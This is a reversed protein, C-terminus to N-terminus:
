SYFNTLTGMIRESKLNKQTRCGNTYMDNHNTNGYDHRINFDKSISCGNTYMNHLTGMINEFKSSKAISFGNKYM